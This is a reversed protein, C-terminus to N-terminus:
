WALISTHDLINSRNRGPEKDVAWTRVSSQCRPPLPTPPAAPTRARGGPAPGGTIVGTLLAFWGGGKGKGGEAEKLRRSRGGGRGARRRRYGEGEGEGRGEKKEDKRRSKSCNLITKQNRKALIKM